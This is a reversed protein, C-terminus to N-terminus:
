EFKSVKWGVNKYSAIQHKSAASKKARNGIIWLSLAPDSKAKYTAEYESPRPNISDSRISSAFTIRPNRNFIQVAAIRKM